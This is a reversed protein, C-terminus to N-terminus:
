CTGDAYCLVFVEATEPLGNARRYAAAQAEASVGPEQWLLHLGGAAAEELKELRKLMADLGKM